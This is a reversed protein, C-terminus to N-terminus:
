PNLNAEQLGAQVHPMNFSTSTVVESNVPPEGRTKEVQTSPEVKIEKERNLQSESIM